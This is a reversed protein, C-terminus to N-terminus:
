CSYCAAAQAAIALVAAAAHHSSNSTAAAALKLHWLVIRSGCRFSDIFKTGVALWRTPLVYTVWNKVTDVEARGKPTSINQVATVKLTESPWDNDLVALAYSLTIDPPVEAAFTDNALLPPLKVASADAPLLLACTNACDM